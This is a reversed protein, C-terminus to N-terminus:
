PALVDVFDSVLGIHFFVAHVRDDFPLLLLFSFAFSVVPVGVCYVFWWGCRPPWSCCARCYCWAGLWCATPALFPSVGVFLAPGSIWGQPWWIKLDLTYAVCVSLAVSLVFWSGVVVPVCLVLGSAVDVCAGVGVAGVVVAVVVFNCTNVSMLLIKRVFSPVILFGM